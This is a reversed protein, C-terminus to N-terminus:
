NSVPPFSWPSVLLFFSPLSFLASLLPVLFPVLSVMVPGSAYPFAPVAAPYFVFLFIFFLSLYFRLRAKIATVLLAAGPPVSCFCFDNRKVWVLYKCVNLPYVSVRPVCRMEDSSFGFLAHGVEISPALPPLRLSSLGLGPTGM